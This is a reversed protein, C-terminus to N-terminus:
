VPSGGRAKLNALFARRTKPGFTLFHPDPAERYAARRRQVRDDRARQLVEEVDISYPRAANLGFIKARLRDTIKPYGHREQLEESIQFSRLAQIQDQPSGYWICDSGYLVNDEGIHKVLKGVIHAASDPDRMAFRWTSGLEAYVNANLGIGNDEVSRILADVGEGRAPDYPGEKQGSIFGSHYVLFNVDPYMRAVIGVDSAISHEYSQRGFPLGKHICINKVGLARAKEIMALGQDEHLFFGRGDPGWQTYCKWAVVGWTEALEDMGELDGPQNPNARGHILLRKTGDMADIIRRTEDAEQITLLERERRSPIFSLVMMDTDSDLFIDKIFQESNGLGTRGIGNAGVFHGQVDFVFERGDLREAAIEPDLAATQDLDFFGGTRGAEANAANFALLTSAAGCSSVLFSRRSVGRRRANEGAREIALRNARRNVPDLPVPVFEGNSTSDLKIPLRTGEPDELLKTFSDSKRPM